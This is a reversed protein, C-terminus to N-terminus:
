DNEGKRAALKAEKAMFEQKLAPLRERLAERAEDGGDAELFKLVNTDNRLHFDPTAYVTGSENKGMHFESNCLQQLSALLKELPADSIAKSKWRTLFKAKRAPVEQYKKGTLRSFCWLYFKFTLDSKLKEPSKGGRPLPPPSAFGIGALSKEKKNIKEKKNECDSVCDSDSDYHLVHEQMKQMGKCASADNAQMQMQESSGDASADNADMQMSDTVVEEPKEQNSPLEQQGWRANAASRRKKVVEDYKKQNRDIDSKIVDFALKTTPDDIRPKKGNVYLLIAEFLKGLSAHDLGGFKELYSTDLIFTTKKNM